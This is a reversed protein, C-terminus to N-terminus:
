TAITLITSHLTYAVRFTVSVESFDHVSKKGVIAFVRLVQRTHRVNVNTTYKAIIYRYLVIYVQMGSNKYPIKMCM